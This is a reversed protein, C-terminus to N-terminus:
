VGYGDMGMGWAWRRVAGEVGIYLLLVKTHWGTDRMSATHPAVGSASLMSVASDYHLATDYAYLGSHRHCTTCRAPLFRMDFAAKAWM